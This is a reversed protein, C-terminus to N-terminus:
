RGRRIAQGWWIALLGVAIFGVAAPIQLDPPLYRAAFWVRVQPDVGLLNFAIPVLGQPFVCLIGVTWLISAAASRGRSLQGELERAPPTRDRALAQPGLDILSSELSVLDGDRHVVRGKGVLRGAGLVNTFEETAAFALQIPDPWAPEDM